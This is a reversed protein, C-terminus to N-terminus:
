RWYINIIDKLLAAGAGKPDSKGGTVTVSNMTDTTFTIGKNAGDVGFLPHSRDILKLSVELCTGEEKSFRGLLKLAKGEERGQDLLHAPVATIGEVKVDNVAFGTDLVANAILLIKSATDWGEVDLSPDPEAIGKSQAENLAKRYDMGERMRTLIYNTTGNLIGEIRYVDTGALSYLAVDLTPLAAATAGSIKLAVENKKARETLGRFDVVLPGKNATVVHWGSDLARRVHSLGPEGSKINSPTCEVVVGPEIFGLIEQLTLGSQWSASERLLFLSSYEALIQGTDLAGSSFLAGDIECVSHFKLGLGYRKQCFETKEHAVQLFAKGVKGFGVLILNVRKM